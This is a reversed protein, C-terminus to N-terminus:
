SPDQEAVITLPFLRRAEWCAESSMSQAREYYEFLKNAHSFGILEAIRRVQDDSDISEGVRLMLHALYQQWHQFPEYPDHPSEVDIRVLNRSAPDLFTVVGFNGDDLIPVLRNRTYPEQTEPAIFFEEPPGVYIDLDEPLPRLRYTDLFVPVPNLSALAAYAQERSFAM